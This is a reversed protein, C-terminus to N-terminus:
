ARLSPFSVSLSSFNSHLYEQRSDAKPRKATKAISEAAPLTAKRFNNRARTLRMRFNPGSIGLVKGAQESTLNEWILLALVEQDRATLSNWAAALDLRSVVQQEHSQTASEPLAGSPRNAAVIADDAIRVQLAGQRSLSRKENLLCNRAVGFLWARADSLETPIESFRRWAILFTDATIDEAVSLPIGAGIRRGVFRLIDHHTARYLAAYSDQRSVSNRSLSGHPRSAPDGRESGASDPRLIDNM